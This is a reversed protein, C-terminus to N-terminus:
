IAVADASRRPRQNRLDKENKLATLRPRFTRARFADQTMAWPM